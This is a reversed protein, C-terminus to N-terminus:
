FIELEEFFDNWDSYDKRGTEVERVCDISIGQIASINMNRASEVSPRITVLKTSNNNLLTRSDDNEKIIWLQIM